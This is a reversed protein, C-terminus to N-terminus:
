NLASHAYIKQGFLHIRVWRVISLPLLSAIFPKVLYILTWLPYDKRQLANWRAKVAFQLQERENQFSIMHKNMRKQMLIEPLTAFQCRSSLRLWLDYDQAKKFQDNYGRVENLLARRMLISGHLFPNTRILATHLTEQNTMLSPKGIVTGDDDIWEFGTGVVGIEPNMQLFNCQKELRTPLAIDDADMRATFEGQAQRLAKNLSKTLGLNKENTMVRVRSDRKSLDALIEATGDTSGDDVILFEFERYTQALISNIAQEVHPKGNYVSLIVSITM